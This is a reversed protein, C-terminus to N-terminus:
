GFPLPSGTAGRAGRTAQGSASAEGTEVTDVPLGALWRAYAVARGPDYAELMARKEAEISGEAHV